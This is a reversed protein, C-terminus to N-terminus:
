SRSLYKIMDKYFDNLFYLLELSFLLFTKATVKYIIFHGKTKLLHCLTVIEVIYNYAFNLTCFIM